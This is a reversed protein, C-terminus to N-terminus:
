GPYLRDLKTSKRLRVYIKMQLEEALEARMQDLEEPKVDVGQSEVRFIQIGNPTKIPKSIEGRKLLKIDRRSAEDFLEFDRWGLYGNIRRGETDTVYEAVMKDWSEGKQMRNYADQLSKMTAAVDADTNTKPKVQITSIRVYNAPNFELFAIKLLLLTSKTNIYLRSWTYGSQALIQGPTLGPQLNQGLRAVEQDIRQDIEQDTVVIKLRSAEQRIAEYSVIDNLVATGHLDWLLDQVDVAKIEVGNVKALVQDPTPAPKLRPTLPQQGQLFISLGLFLGVATM